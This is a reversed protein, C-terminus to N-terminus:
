GNQKSVQTKHESTFLNAGYNWMTKYNLCDKYGKWVINEKGCSILSYINFKSKCPKNLGRNGKFGRVTGITIATEDLSNEVDLFFNM